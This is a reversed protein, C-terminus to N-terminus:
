YASLKVFARMHNESRNGCMFPVAFRTRLFLILGLELGTRSLM